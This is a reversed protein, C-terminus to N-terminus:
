LFPCFSLFPAFWFLFFHSMFSVHYLYCFASFWHIRMIVFSFYWRQNQVKTIFPHRLHFMCLNLVVSFFCVYRIFTIHILKSYKRIDHVSYCKLHVYLVCCLICHWSFYILFFSAGFSDIIDVNLIFVCCFMWVCFVLFLFSALLRVLDPSSDWLLLNNCKRRPM